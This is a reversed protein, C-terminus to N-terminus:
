SGVGTPSPTAPLALFWGALGLAAFGPGNLFGHTLAMVPIGVLFRGTSEELAYLLALGMAAILSLSATGLLVRPLVGRIQRLSDLTLLALAVYSAALVSAAALKVSSSRTIWGLALCAPGAIAGAAAAIFASRRPGPAVVLGLTGAFLPGAFGAYHFHVATLLIMPEVFGAPTMGARSQFLWAGGIAVYLLGSTFCAESASVFRRRIVREAGALAALLTLGLWPLSLIAALTGAPLLFSALAAAAAPPQTLAAARLAWPSDGRSAQRGLLALGLPVVVLPALLFLLAITGATTRAPLGAAALLVWLLAGTVAATLSIRESSIPIM